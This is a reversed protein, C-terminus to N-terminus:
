STKSLPCVEPPATHWPVGAVASQLLSSGRVKQEGISVSVFLRNLPGNLLARGQTGWFLCSPPSLSPWDSTRKPSMSSAFVLLSENLTYKNAYQFTLEM